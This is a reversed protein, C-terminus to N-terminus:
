HYQCHIPLFICAFVIEHCLKAKKCALKTGILLIWALKSIPFTRGKHVTVPDRM